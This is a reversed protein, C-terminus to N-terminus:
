FRPSKNDTKGAYRNVLKAKMEASIGKPFEEGGSQEFKAFYYDENNGSDGGARKSSSPTAAKVDRQVKNAKLKDIVYEDKLTERLSEGTRKMVSKIIKIDEDATIGKLDLYDLQTEDLEGTKAKSEVKEEAKADPEIGLEKNVRKLQRELRSKKQEPTEKPKEAEPKVEETTTDEVGVDAQETTEAEVQDNETM